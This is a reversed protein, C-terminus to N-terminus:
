KMLDVLDEFPSKQQPQQPQQPQQSASQQVPPTTTNIVNPTSVGPTIPTQASPTFPQSYSVPTNISPGMAYLSKLAENSSLNNAPTPSQMAPVQAEATTSPGPSPASFLDIPLDTANQTLQVGSDQENEREIHEHQLPDDFDILNQGADNRNSSRSTM